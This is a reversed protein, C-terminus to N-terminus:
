LRVSKSLQGGGGLKLATPFLSPLANVGRTQSSFQSHYADTIAAPELPVNPGELEPGDLVIASPPSVTPTLLFTSPCFIDAMDDFTM